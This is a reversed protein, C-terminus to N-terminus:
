QDCSWHPFRLHVSSIFFATFTPAFEVAQVFFPDRLAPDTVGPQDSVYRFCDFPSYIAGGVLHPSVEIPGVHRAEIEVHVTRRSQRVVGPLRHRRTRRCGDSASQTLNFVVKCILGGRRGRRARAGPARAREGKGFRHPWVSRVSSNLLSVSIAPVGKVVTRPVTVSM